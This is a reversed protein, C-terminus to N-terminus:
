VRGAETAPVAAARARRDLGALDLAAFDHPPLWVVAGRTGRAFQRVVTQADSAIERAARAYTANDAPDVALRGISWFYLVHRRQQSGQGARPMREPATAPFHRRKLFLDGAFGGEEGTGLRLYGVEDNFFWPPWYWSDMWHIQIHRPLEDFPKGWEREVKPRQSAVYRDHLACYREFDHRHIPLTLLPFRVFM